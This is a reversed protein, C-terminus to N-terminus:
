FKTTYLAEFVCINDQPAYVLPAERRVRLSRWNPILTKGHLYDQCRALLHYVGPSMADGRLADRVGRRNQDGVLLMVGLEVPNARNDSEAVALEGAVVYICPFQPILETLEQVDMQGTYLDLTKLGPQEHKLAALVALVADELQEFPHM